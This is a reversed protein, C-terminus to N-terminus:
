PSSKQAPTPTAPAMHEFMAKAAEQRAKEADNQAQKAHEQAQTTEEKSIELKNRRELEGAITSSAVIVVALSIVGLTVTKALKLHYTNEDMPKEKLIEALGIEDKVMPAPEGPTRYPTTPVTPRPMLSPLIKLGFVAFNDFFAMKHEERM